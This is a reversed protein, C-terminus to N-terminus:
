YNRRCGYPTPHYGPPCARYNPRYNPRCYGNGDRFGNPGCGGSVQIIESANAVQPATMDGSTGAAQVQPVAFMMGLAFAVTVLTQKM